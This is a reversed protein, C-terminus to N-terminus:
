LQDLWGSGLLDGDSKTRLLFYSLWKKHPTVIFERQSM